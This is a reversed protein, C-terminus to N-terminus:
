GRDFGTCKLHFLSSTVCQVVSLLSFISKKITMFIEFDLVSKFHNNCKIEAVSLKNNCKCLFSISM